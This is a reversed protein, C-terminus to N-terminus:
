FKWSKIKIIPKQILEDPLNEQEILVSAKLDILEDFFNIIHRNISFVSHNSMEGRIHLVKSNCFHCLKERGIGKCWGIRYNHSQM